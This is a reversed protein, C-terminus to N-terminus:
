SNAQPPAPTRSKSASEIVADAPPPGAGGIAGRYGSMRDDISKANCDRRAAGRNPPARGDILHAVLARAAARNDVVITDTEVDALERDVCVVPLGQAIMGSDRRRQRGGAGLILGDVRKQQLVDFYMREKDLNESTNCLIFKYRGADRHVVDEVGLVLDAFFPNGIDSIM